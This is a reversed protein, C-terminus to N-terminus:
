KISSAFQAFDGLLADVKDPTSTLGVEYLVGDKTFVGIVQTMEVGNMTRTVGYYVSDGNTYKKVETAGFAKAMVFGYDDNWTDVSVNQAASKAVVLNTAFTDTSASPNVLGFDVMFAATDELAMWGAPAVYSFEAGSGQSSTATAPTGGTTPTIEGADTMTVGNQTRDGGNDTAEDTTPDETAADTTAADTTAEDTENDPAESTVTASNTPVLPKDDDGGCAALSGALALAALFSLTKKM